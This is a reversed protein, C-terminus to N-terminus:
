KNVNAQCTTQYALKYSDLNNLPSYLVMKKDKTCCTMSLKDYCSMDIRFVGM